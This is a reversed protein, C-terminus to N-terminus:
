QVNNFLTKINSFKEKKIDFNMIKKAEIDIKTEKEKEKTLTKKIFKNANINNIHKKYNESFIHFGTKNDRVFYLYKTKVPFIAAKIANLSVACVPNDPLGKYKYTNFSSNDNLIRRKTIKKHSYIGYNLTGDMQLKMRKKIRNHIVSSIIPMEDISAAEKQIISAVIIYHYWQKKDFTGFIKKAFYEYQKNTKSFLYFLLHDENMGIPLSYTNALINGDTKYAYDKYIDKLKTRSLNFEKSVKNLFYYSTEGPILTINKLAAKSTTLKYLFDLKTQKSIKINIWGSQIYGMPSLALKDLFNLEFGTKNLYSIISNTSGKPIYLVKTSYVPKTLYFLTVIACILFFEIINFFIIFNKDTTSIKNAPKYKKNSTPM